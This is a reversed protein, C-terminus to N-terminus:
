HWPGTEERNQCLRLYALYLAFFVDGCHEFHYFPILSVDSAEAPVEVDHVHQNTVQLGVVDDKAVLAPEIRERM